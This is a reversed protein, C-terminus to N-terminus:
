HWADYDKLWNEQHRRSDEAAHAVGCSIGIKWLNEGRPLSDHPIRPGSWGMYSLISSVMLLVCDTMTIMFRNRCV